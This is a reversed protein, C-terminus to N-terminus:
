RKQELILFFLFLDKIQVEIQLNELHNPQMYRLVFLDLYKQVEWLIRLNLLFININLGAVSSKKFKSMYASSERLPTTKEFSSSIKLERSVYSLMGIM